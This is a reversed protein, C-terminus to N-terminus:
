KIKWEKTRGDFIVHFNRFHNKFQKVKSPPIMDWEDEGRDNTYHVVVDGFRTAGQLLNKFWPKNALKKVDSLKVETLRKPANTVIEAENMMDAHEQLDRIEFYRNLVHGMDEYLSIMRYEMKQAEESVKTFDEHYKKLEKMNRKITIQDFWDDAENMTFSEAARAVVSLAKAIESLQHQRELKKGYSAYEGVLRLFGEKAREDLQPLEEGEFLFYDTLKKTAM